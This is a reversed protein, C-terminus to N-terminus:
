RASEIIERAADVAAEVTAVHGDLQREYVAQLNECKAWVPSRADLPLEVLPTQRAGGELRRAAEEIASVPVVASMAECYVPRM